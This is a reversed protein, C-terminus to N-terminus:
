VPRGIAALYDDLPVTEPIPGPPFPRPNEKAERLIRALNDAAEPTLEIRSADIM